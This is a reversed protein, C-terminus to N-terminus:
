KMRESTVVAVKNYIRIAVEEGFEDHIVKTFIGVMEMVNARIAEAIDTTLDSKLGMLELERKDHETM